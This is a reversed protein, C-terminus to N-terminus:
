ENLILSDKLVESLFYDIFFTTLQSKMNKDWFDDDKEIKEYM